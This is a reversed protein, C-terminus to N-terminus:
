EKFKGSFFTCTICYMSLNHLVYDSKCLLITCLLCLAVPFNKWSLFPSTLIATLTRISKGACQARARRRRWYAAVVGGPACTASPACTGGVAAAAGRVTYM